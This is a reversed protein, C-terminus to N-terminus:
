NKKLPKIRSQVPESLVGLYDTDTKVKDSDGNSVEIMEETGDKFCLEIAPTAWQSGYIGGILINNKYKEYDPNIQSEESNADFNEKFISMGNKRKETFEEYLEDANDPLERVYKGDEWITEATWCWDEHMGLSASELNSENEKIIQKAKKFDYTKM